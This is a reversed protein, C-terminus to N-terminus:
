ITLGKKNFDDKTINMFIIDFYEGNAYHSNKWVGFEKFGCKKYAKQARLNFSYVRLMINNLNIFNFGYNLLLMIAESGYGRSLHNEDGIFIGLEATQNIQNIHELGIAGIM